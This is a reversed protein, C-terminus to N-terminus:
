QWIKHDEKVAADGGNLLSDQKRYLTYLSFVDFYERKNVNRKGCGKWQFGQLTKGSDWCESSDSNAFVNKKKFKKQM